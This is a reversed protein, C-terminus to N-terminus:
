RVPALNVPPTTASANGLFVHTAGSSDYVELSFVLSCPATAPRTVTQQVSAFIEARQPSSTVGVSEATLTITDIVGSGVTFSSASGITEGKASTFTVTGTCSPATADSATSAPAINILSVSATDGFSLGVPPFVYNTTTTSTTTGTTGQAFAAACALTLAMLCVLSKTM